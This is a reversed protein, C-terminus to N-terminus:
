VENGSEVDGKKFTKRIGSVYRGFCSDSTYNKMKVKAISIWNAVADFGSEEVYAVLVNLTGRDMEAQGRIECYFNCVIQRLKEREEAARVVAVYAATQERSEQIVRLRDQETPASQGITKGSKGQNCEVCATILNEVDNTGGQCVPHVHDVVLEIEDSQKGCYRCTFGDRAFVQFRIRKSLAVRKTMENEKLFVGGRQAFDPRSLSGATSGRFGLPATYIERQVSESNM